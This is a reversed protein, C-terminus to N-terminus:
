SDNRRLEIEAKIELRDRVSSCNDGRSDESDGFAVQECRTLTVARLEKILMNRHWYRNASFDRVRAESRARYHGSFIM